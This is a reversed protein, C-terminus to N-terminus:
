SQVVESHLDLWARTRQSVEPETGETLEDEQVDGVIDEPDAMDLDETLGGAHAAYSLDVELTAEDFEPPPDDHVRVDPEPAM